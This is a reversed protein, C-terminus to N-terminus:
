ENLYRIGIQRLVQSHSITGNRYMLALDSWKKSKVLSKGVRIHNQITARSLMTRLSILQVFSPMKDQFEVSELLNIILTRHILSIDNRFTVAETVKDSKERLSVLHTKKRDSLLKAGHKKQPFINEYVYKLYFLSLDVKYSSFPQHKKLKLSKVLNQVFLRSNDSIERKIANLDRITQNLVENM